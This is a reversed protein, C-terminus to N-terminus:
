RGEVSAPGRHVDVERTAFDAMALVILILLWVVGAAAWLRVAPSEKRLHMFSLAVLTGKAAAIALALPLNLGGLDRFAAVVTLATLVLLSVYAAALSRPSM